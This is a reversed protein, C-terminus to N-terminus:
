SAYEGCLVAWPNANLRYLELKQWFSAELSGRDFDYRLRCEAYLCGSIIGGGRFGGAAAAM